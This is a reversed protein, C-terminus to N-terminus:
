VALRRPVAAHPPGPEPVTDSRRVSMSLLLVLGIPGLRQLLLYTINDCDSSLWLMTAIGLPPALLAAPLRDGRLGRLHLRRVGRVAFAFPIFVLPVAPPGFNLIAEGPLGYVNSAWQRDEFSYVGQGQLLETGYYMKPLPRDPVIWDPVPLLLGAAYTGGWALEGVGELRRELLIAQVDARGFDGLLMAPADRGTEQSMEAVSKKGKFIDLVQPGANKYMGYVFMFIVFVVAACAMVRRSIRQVLFHVLMLGMVVPWLTNSRSGRLGGVFFQVLALALLLAVILGPRGVLERRWRVVVLTFIMSPFSEGVTLLGNHGLLLDRNVTMTDVFGSLGGFKALEAIFAGVGVLAMLVGFRYFRREDFRVRWLEGAPGRAVRRRARRSSTLWRYAVLGVLNLTAMLGFAHRWDDPAIVRKPWWDFMVHLLPALYFLHVGILGILAQPDFLDLRRRLWDVVDIGLIAGCMAAPIVFWHMLRPDLLVLCITTVLVVSFSLAWSVADDQM